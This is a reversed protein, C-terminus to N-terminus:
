LVNSRGIIKFIEQIVPFSPHQTKFRRCLGTLVHKGSEIRYGLQKQSLEIALVALEGRRQSSLTQPEPPYATTNSTTRREGNVTRREGNVTRRERNTTRRTGVGTGIQSFRHSPTLRAAPANSM